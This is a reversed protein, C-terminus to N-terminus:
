CDPGEGRRSLPRVPEARLERVDAANDVHREDALRQAGAGTRRFASSTKGSSCRSSSSWSSTQYGWAPNPEVGAGSRQSETASPRSALQPSRLDGFSRNSDDALLHGGRPARQLM